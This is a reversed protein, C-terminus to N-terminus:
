QWNSNNGTVGFKNLPIPVHPVESPPIKKKVEEAFM